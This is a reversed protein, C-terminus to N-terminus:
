SFRAFEGYLELARRCFAQHAEIPNSFRGLNEYKGGPVRIRTVWKKNVVDWSVGKFGSKNDKRRNANQMNQSQNALRLNGLADGIEKGEKHDLQLPWQGHVILWVIHHVLYARNFIRITRYGNKSDHGAKRGAYRGNWSACRARDGDFMEISRAKWVLRGTAADCILLSRVQEATPKVMM